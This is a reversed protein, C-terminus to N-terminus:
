VHFGLEYYIQQGCAELSAEWSTTALLLHLRASEYVLKLLSCLLFDYIIKEYCFWWSNCPMGNKAYSIIKKQMFFNLFYNFKSEIMIFVAKLFPNKFEKKLDCLHFSNLQRLGTRVQCSMLIIKPLISRRKQPPFQVWTRACALCPDVM